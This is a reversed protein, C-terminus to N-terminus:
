SLIQKSISPKIGNSDYLLSELRQKGGREKISKALNIASKRVEADQDNAAKLSFEVVSLPM